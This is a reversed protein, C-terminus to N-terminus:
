CPLGIGHWVLSNVAGCGSDVWMSAPLALFDGTLARQPRAVMLQFGNSLEMNRKTLHSLWEDAIQVFDAAFDTPGWQRKDQDAREWTLHAVQKHIAPLM